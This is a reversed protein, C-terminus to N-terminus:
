QGASGAWYRTRALVTGEGPNRLGVHIQHLGSHPDKPEFSLLYRSHLHNTFDLMRNEFSGRTDFLEYEGGTMSAITKPANKKMAQVAMRLPALLDPGENMEESNNGRMTDLVNSLSPSFPLAYITTNSNGILTVLDDIKKAWISGHDRTESILLLVRQRDKSVTELLKESFYVADLTAAGNDGYQLNKLDQTILGGESTFEQTLEVTSDFEVLAIEADVQDLIPQLMSSLGQIRPFEYAARRGRQIAIVLSVPNSEAAEDLHVVQQVGDDEIVFDKTQLGYVPKGNADRVLTPVLVLNIQSRFTPEQVFASVGLVFFLVPVASLADILKM